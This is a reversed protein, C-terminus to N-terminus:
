AILAAREAPTLVGTIKGKSRKQYNKIATLMPDDGTTAGYDGSWLLAAQIKAREGFPIGALADSAPEAKAPELRAPAAAVKPTAAKATAPKAAVKKGAPKKAPEAAAPKVAAAKPKLHKKVPKALPDPMPIIGPSQASAPGAGLLLALTVLLPGWRM